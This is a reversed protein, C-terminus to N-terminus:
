ILSNDRLCIIELTIQAWNAFYKMAKHQQLHRWHSHEQWPGARPKIYIATAGPHVTPMESTQRAGYCNKLCFSVTRYLKAPRQPHSLNQWVRQLLRVARRWSGLLDWHVYKTMKRRFLATALHNLRSIKFRRKFATAFDIPLSCRPLHNERYM